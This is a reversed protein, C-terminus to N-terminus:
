RHQRAWEALLVATAAAVNLSEVRGSGPIGVRATCAAALAPDVGVGEAGLVWVCREPLPRAYLSEGGRVVTALLQFGAAQLQTIANDIRGLRVCPVAEAGGEAVRVAAGSLAPPASKPLLLAAAGFHAGARLIAGINHPNGVGDLWLLPVPGRPLDRLFSSLPLEDPRRFAAVVGEHHQSGSLRQLDEAEVLTYGRRRAVCGAVLERLEGLRAPLLWLKRLDDPRAAFAARVANLGFLRLEAEAAAPPRAAAPPERKM